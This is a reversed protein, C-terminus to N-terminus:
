SALVKAIRNLEASGAGELGKMIGIVRGDRIFWVDASVSSGDAGPAAEFRVELPERGIPEYRRYSAIRTPLPTTGFRARSWLIAMQPGADLVFPNMLWDSETARAGNDARSPDVIAQIGRADMGLLDGIVQFRPGHFLWQEYAEPAALPFPSSLLRPEPAEPARPREAALVITASYAERAPRGSGSGRGSRTDRLSVRWEGSSAAVQRPEARVVIEHNWEELILGSYLKLGEVSVVQWGPRAWLAAEAMLELAVTLPLVKRGDIVHDRLFGFRESDVVIRGEVTSEALRLFDGSVLPGASQRPVEEVPEVPESRSWPGTGLLVRVDKAEPSAIERWAARRGAGVAIMEVGRSEFQRLVEDSVMAGAGVWPGWNLAMVRAPWLDDLRRAMRNLMENAAVYDGQGRNGFFGAVSSFLVLLKLRNPDLHRVLTLLPDIKAGVVRDFSEESKDRILKDEIIGAGHIVVDIGGYRDKVDEVVASLREADRIDCPVYEVASGTDALAALSRRLERAALIRRVELDIERPTRKTGAKGGLRSREVLLRRLQLPDHIPATVPEEEADPHPTRGLIVFTARTRSAIEQTVESTIGRGGGMVLVVSKEDLTPTSSAVDTPLDRPAAVATVLRGSRWGLELPGPALISRLLISAEPTEDVDIARFRAGEWEVAATKLFGALGGRWPHTAEGPAGGFDGGGRSVSAVVVPFSSARDLEPVAAQLLYLLGKVEGNSQEAWEQDSVGPFAPADRLPLLHVVGGIAGEDNRIKELARRAMERTGVDTASLLVARGGAAEIEKALAPAAAQGDDTLVFVGAPLELTSDLALPVEVTKAVCRAPEKEVRDAVPALAPTEKGPGGNPSISPTGNSTLASVGRLIAALTKADSMQQVFWGPPESIEPAAKRRFSAVIEVRKISDIGLDAELNAELGLMDEPYGTRESVIELLTSELSAAPRPPAPSEAGVAPAESSGRVLAEVGTLISRLTRAGSMQEVFWGPPESLSPVVARRFSAIIEVRKISDIGLDAELNSDLELMDEPYGTRESVIDLLRGRLSSGDAIASPNPESLAAVPEPASSAPSVLVSEVSAEPPEVSAVARSPGFYATMVAEQTELFRRMTEQFQAHPDSSDFPNENSSSSAEPPSIREAHIADSVAAPAPTPASAVRVPPPLSRAPESAPRAYGGNVIWVHPPLSVARKESLGRLDIEALGRGEYLREADLRAGQSFLEALAKLFRVVGNEERSETVIAAHPRDGLIQGVLRSLVAGPGVEVFVRAGEAYMAEIEDYFRVKQVLQESLRERIKRPESGYPAATTNAFVPMRPPRFDTADLARGFRERAPSMIPSHFACAVPIPASEVGAAKLAESTRAVADKTGSLITQAPANLNAIWVGEVGEVLAEVTGADARVALMTGLEAAAGRATMEVMSDGREWSLRYLDDAELSGAAHLAVLEGYSHGAVFDPRVGVAALLRTMAVGSAGLAPQAVNTAKLEEFARGRGEGDFAPPPFVFRSLPRDLKGALAADAEEFAERVETFEIALDRMMNPVQSGQGPFLFAVPSSARRPEPARHVGARKPASGPADLMRLLAALQERLEDLSGSVIAARQDGTSAASTSAQRHHTYALDALEVSASSSSALSLASQLREVKKKLDAESASWFLFLEAERRRRPPELRLSHVDDEYEELVAHFNTGGFGFASIGARRPYEGRIWPRLESNVYLPGEGFGARPNPTEVHITPPLVRHRLALATKIVGAIGASSKTHGINSKVSGVAVSSKAGGHRALLSSLSQCETRDGLATGTAHAELLGLTTSSFGAQAYARELTRAQGDVCPATLSLHRGDSGAAVARIVAYIRDGDREADGLRKLVAAGLGESISIGDVAADFPRSRGSATLAGTKAFCLYAFPSQVVDCGGVIMMDSSKASLERCGLYLAALSSACAADVTFNPGGLDFRNSVRGAVVNPLLGPFSDETWEPLRERVQGESDDVFQPLLSRFSYLSGLDGLGGTFGFIVGTRERSPNRAEYGADRLAREVLELALLQGPEISRIARPPIGYKLPDFVVDRIFGGRTAHIKDRARSDPDHWLRWDFRHSPIEELVDRGELINNWFGQLDDAGPMLAAMGVIAIELPPESTSSEPLSVEISRAGLARLSEAAGNSIQEHVDRVTSRERRLAAVQGLMYMGQRRQLDGAVHAYPSEGPKREDTRVIGKSAIRLRGLNLRELEERIEEAPRGEGVLRTRETAFFRVYDTDACRVQHGAGSEVLVTRGTKIAVEQFGPVIAGTAVVEETFLYASGILAGFKMGREVLSQAIASAMSASLADHIGGAFLVHVRSAEEDSLGAELLVAVMTEWLVFSTRPGVHGGCERGEFIFRRAGERLFAELLTPSPVHLYTAIGKAELSAAQDPRGGAIIAFPPRVEEIVSLQEAQLKRDVFGLIGVGWPRNGMFDRTKDLLSRVADRRMMALALFPLAGGREVADCFEPVDSVRTMPGQVIPFETGHSVALPGGRELACSEIAGAVARELETALEELSRAVTPSRSIWRSAFAADQSVPWLRAEPRSEALLAKIESEWRELDQPSGSRLSQSLAELRERATMGPQHYLRYLSGDPARLAITESGDMAAIRKRFRAPVPSERALSLQWDLVVGSAGAVRCAAATHFGIGGWAYVPLSTRARCRQLLVFTTEEGVRGGAEHGKVVVFDVGARLAADLDDEGLVILGVRRAAARARELVRSLDEDRERTVVVMEASRLASLAADEIEGSRGRAVIGFKGRSLRTLRDVSRLVAAVDTEYTLDHLGIAGARSAAVALSPEAFGGPSVAVLEFGTVLVVRSDGRPPAEGTRSAEGRHPAQSVGV